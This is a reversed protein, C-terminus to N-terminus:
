LRGYDHIESRPGAKFGVAIQITTIPIKEFIKEKKLLTLMLIQVIKMAEDKSLACPETVHNALRGVRFIEITLEKPNTTKQMYSTHEFPSAPEDILHYPMSSSALCTKHNLNPSKLVEELVNFRISSTTSPIRCKRKKELLPTKTLTLRNAIALRSGAATKRYKRQTNLNRPKYVTKFYTIM